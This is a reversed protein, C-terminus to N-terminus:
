GRRNPGSLGLEAACRPCFLHGRADIERVARAPVMICGSVPCHGLGAVHGIEHLAEGLLRAPFREPAGERLRALSVLACCGGLTAEGFIFRREPAFLDAETLALVWGETDTEILADVIANSAYQGREEDLWETRLRWPEAIRCRVPLGEELRGALWALLAPEVPGIALLCLLRRPPEPPTM